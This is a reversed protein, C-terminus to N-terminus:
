REGRGKKPESFTKLMAEAVSHSVVIGNILGSQCAVQLAYAQEKIADCRANLAVVPKSRATMDRLVWFAVSNVEEEPLLPVGEHNFLQNLLCGVALDDIPHSFGAQRLFTFDDPQTARVTLFAADMTAFPLQPHFHQCRVSPQPLEACRLAISVLVTQTSVAQSLTLIPSEALGLFELRTLNPFYRLIMPLNLCEVMTRVEYGSGLGIVMQRRERLIDCFVQAAALGVQLLQEAPDAYSPVVRADLLGYRRILAIELAHEPSPVLVSFSILPPEEGAGEVAEKLWRHVRKRSVRLRAAIEKNTKCPKRSGYRLHAVFFRHKREWWEVRGAVDWLGRPKEACRLLEVACGEDTVLHNFLPGGYRHSRYVALVAKAKEKGGALAVVPRGLQVMERLIRLPITEFGAPEPLLRAPPAGDAAFFHFLVEAVAGARQAAALDFVLENAYNHWANETLAGIGIFAWDLDNGSQVAHPQLIGEWSIGDTAVTKRWRCDVILESIAKEADAILVFPHSSRSLAYFRLRKPLSFHALAKAFSFIARGGGLGIRQGEDFQPAFVQAAALGLYGNLAATDLEGVDPIVVVRRLGPFAERVAEGLEADIPPTVTKALLSDSRPDKLVRRVLHRLQYSSRQRYPLFIRLGDILKRPVASTHPPLFSVEGL